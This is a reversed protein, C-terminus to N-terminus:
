KLEDGSIYIEIKNDNLYTKLTPSLIKTNGLKWAQNIIKWYKSMHDLTRRRYGQGLGQLHQLLPLWDACLGQRPSGQYSGTCEARGQKAREEDKWVGWHRHETIGREPGVWWEREPKGSYKAHKRMIIWKYPDREEKSRAWQSWLNGLWRLIILTQWLVQGTQHSFLCEGRSEVQLATSINVFQM